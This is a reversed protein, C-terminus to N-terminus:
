TPNRRPAPATGSPKRSLCLTTTSGSSPPWTSRRRADARDDVSIRGVRIHPLVPLAALEGAAPVAASTVAEVFTALVDRTVGREITVREVGIQTLRRVLGLYSASKSLPLDDVIIESGVIGMVIAPAKEHLVQVHAFLAEINGAMIPHGKSYLQLSRVATALRRVFEEFLQPQPGTM